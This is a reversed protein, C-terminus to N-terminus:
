TLIVCISLLCCHSGQRPRFCFSLRQFIPISGPVPIIGPFIDLVVVPFVIAIMILEVPSKLLDPIEVFCNSCRFLYIIGMSVIDTGLHYVMVEHVDELITDVESGALSSCM